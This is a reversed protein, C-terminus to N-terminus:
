KTRIRVSHLRPTHGPRQTSSRLHEGFAVIANRRIAANLARDAGNDFGAFELWAVGDGGFAFERAKVFDAEHGRAVGECGELAFTDNLAAASDASEDGGGFNVEVLQHRVGFLHPTAAERGDGFDKEGFNDIVLFFGGGAERKRGLAADEFKLAEAGGSAFGESEFSAVEGGSLEGTQEGRRQLVRREEGCELAFVADFEAVGVFFDVGGDGIGTGGFQEADGPAFREEADALDDIGGLAEDDKVDEAEVAGIAVVQYDAAVSLEGVAVECDRVEHEGARDFRLDQM